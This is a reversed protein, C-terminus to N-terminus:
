QSCVYTRSLVLTYLPIDHRGYYGITNCLAISYLSRGKRQRLRKRWNGQTEPTAIALKKSSVPMAEDKEEMGKGTEKTEDVNMIKENANISETIDFSNENSSLGNSGARQENEWTKRKFDEAPSLGSATVAARREASELNDESTQEFRALDYWAYDRARDIFWNHTLAGSM